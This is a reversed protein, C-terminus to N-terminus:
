MSNNLAKASLFDYLVKQANDLMDEDEKLIELAPVVSAGKEVLLKALSQYAEGKKGFVREALLALAFKENKDPLAGRELLVEAAEFAVMMPSKKLAHQLPTLGGLTYEINAGHDLLLVIIDPRNYTAALILAKNLHNNEGIKHMNDYKFFTASNGSYPSFLASMAQTCGKKAAFELAADGDKDPLEVIEAHESILHKITEENNELIAVHLPTCGQQNKIADSAGRELLLGLLQNHGKRAALHLLTEGAQDQKNLEEHPLAKLLEAALALDITKIDKGLELYLTKYTTNLM